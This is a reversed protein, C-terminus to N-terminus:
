KKMFHLLDTTSKSNGGTLEVNGNSYKKVDWDKSLEEFNEPSNFIIDFHVHDDENGSSDIAWVGSIATNGDTAGLSGTNGFSFNFDAFDATKDEDDNLFYSIKWEGGEIASKIATIDESTVVYEEEEKDKKCSSFVILAFMVLSFHKVIDKMIVNKNSKSRM